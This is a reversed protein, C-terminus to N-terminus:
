EKVYTTRGDVNVSDVIGIVAADTPVDKGGEDVRASSGLAVIVVEDHGAGALDVAIHVTGNEQDTAGDDMLDAAIEEVLLLKHCALGPSKVSSVV